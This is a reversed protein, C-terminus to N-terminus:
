VLGHNQLYRRVPTDVELPAKRVYNIAGELREDELSRLYDAAAQTSFQRGTEQKFNPALDTWVVADFGHEGAWARVADAVSNLRAGHTGARLDVFGIRAATPM